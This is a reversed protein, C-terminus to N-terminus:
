NISIAVANSSGDKCNPHGYCIQSNSIPTELYGKKLPPLEGGCQSCTADIVNWYTNKLYLGTRSGDDYLYGNYQCSENNGYKCSVMISDIVVYCTKKSQLDALWDPYFEAIKSLLVGEPIQFTTVLTGNEMTEDVIVDPSSFVFTVYEMAPSREMTGLVCRSVTVGKTAYAYQGSKKKDRVQFFINGSEDRWAFKSPRTEASVPLTNISISSIGIIMTLALILLKHIYKNEKKM